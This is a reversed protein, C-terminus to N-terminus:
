FLTEQIINRNPSYYGILMFKGSLANTGVVFYTKRQKFLYDWFRQTLKSKWGDDYIEMYQRASEMIEWAIFDMKHPVKCRMDNCSFTYVFEYPPRKLLNKKQNFLSPQIGIGKALKKRDRVDKIEFNLIDKPMFAGLSKGNKDKQDYLDELSKSITPLFLRNIENWDRMTKLGELLTISDQQVKYSDPRKGIDSMDRIAKVKIYQFKDFRKNFPLDRFEIPYLRIWKGTEDIGATCVVERQKSIINPATKVIVLVKKDEFM